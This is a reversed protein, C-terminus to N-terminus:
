SYRKKNVDYLEEGIGESRYDQEHQLKEKLAEVVILQDDIKANCIRLVEDISNLDCRLKSM